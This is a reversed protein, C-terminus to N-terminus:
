PSNKEYVQAQQILNTGNEWFVHKWQDASPKAGDASPKRPRLRISFSLKRIGVGALGCFGEASRFVHIDFYGSLHANLSDLYM